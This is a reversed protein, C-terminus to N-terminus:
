DENGHKLANERYIKRRLIEYEKQHSKIFNKIKDKEDNKKMKRYDLKYKEFLKEKVYDLVKRNGERQKRINTRKEYKESCNPHMKSM